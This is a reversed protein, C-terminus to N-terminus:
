ADLLMYGHVNSFYRAKFSPFLQADKLESAMYWRRGGPVNAGIYYGNPAKLFYRKYRITDAFNLVADFLSKFYEMRAENKQNFATYVDTMKSGDVEIMRKLTSMIYSWYYGNASNRPRIQLSCLGVMLDYKDGNYDYKKPIRPYVNNDYGTITIKGNKRINIGTAIFYSM